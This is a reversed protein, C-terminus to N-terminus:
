IIVDQGLSLIVHDFEDRVQVIVALLRGATMDADPVIIVANKGPNRKKVSLLLKRLATLSKVRKERGLSPDAGTVRFGSGQAEITLGLAASGQQLELGRPPLLFVDQGRLGRGSANVILSLNPPVAPRSEAAAYALDVVMRAKASRHAAIHVTAPIEISLTAAEVALQLWARNLVDYFAELCQSQCAAAPNLSQPLSNQLALAPKDFVDLRDVGLTLFLGPTLPVGNAGFLNETGFARNVHNAVMTPYRAGGAGGLPAQATLSLAAALVLGLM